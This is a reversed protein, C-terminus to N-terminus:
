RSFFASDQVWFDGYFPNAMWRLGRAIPVFARQPKYHLFILTICCELSMLGPSVNTASGLAIGKIGSATSFPAEFIAKVSELLM